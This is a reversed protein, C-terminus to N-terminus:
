FIAVVDVQLETSLRKYIKDRVKGSSFLSGLDSFRVWNLAHVVASPSSNVLFFVGEDTLKLNVQANKIDNPPNTDATGGQQMVSEAGCVAGCLREASTKFSM